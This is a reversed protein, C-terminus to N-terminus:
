KLEPHNELFKAISEKSASPMYRRANAIDNESIVTANTPAPANNGPLPSVHALANSLQQKGTPVNLKAQSLEDFHVAAYARSLPIGKSVLDKTETDLKDMSELQLGYKANLEAIQAQNKASEAEALIQRARIVEPHEAVINDIIPKGVTPDIGADTLKKDLGSNLASDWNEFGLASALNQRDKARMEKLRAAIIKDIQENATPSAAGPQPNAGQNKEDM